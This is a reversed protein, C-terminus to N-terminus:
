LAASSCPPFPEDTILKMSSNKNLFIQGFIGSEWPMKITNKVVERRSRVVTDWVQFGMPTTLPDVRRSSSSEVYSALSLGLQMRKERESKERLAHEAGMAAMFDKTEQTAEGFGDDSDEGMESCPNRMAAAMEEDILGTRRKKPEICIFHPLGPQLQLHEVDDAPPPALPTKPGERESDSESPGLCAMPVKARKRAARM